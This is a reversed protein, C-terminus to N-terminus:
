EEIRYLGNLVNGNEDEGLGFYVKGDIRFAIQNEARGCPMTGCWEWADKAPLYRMYSDMVEGGTMDGAHYRGGFLYIYQDDDACACWQRGKGPISSKENWRDQRMDAAYWQTLNNTNFGTGFYLVGDKVLGAGGFCAKARDSSDELMQWSDTAVDYICINRTFGYGFGYIVYIKNDYVFSTPAVTNANPFDALQKWQGTAPTFSWWDRQYATDNYAKLASYGVGMYLTGEYAVMTANVRAKMPANGVKLWGDAKPDYQWLENRYTGKADRGAFVYAKGDLVTACASARGEPMSACARTSLAVKPTQHCSVMMMAALLLVIYKKSKM